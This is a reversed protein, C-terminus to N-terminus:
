KHLFDSCLWEIFNVDKEISIIDNETPHYIQNLKRVKGSDQYEKLLGEYKEVQENKWDNLSKDTPNIQGYWSLGTNWSQEYVEKPHIPKEESWTLYFKYM